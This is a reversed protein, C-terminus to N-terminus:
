RPWSSRGCRPSTAWCSCCGTAVGPVWAACGTPSRTPGTPWSATVDAAGDADADAIIRLAERDPHEAAIVDFWDLAWNFEELQPWRFEAMAAPYNVRHRLLLDRASRFALTPSQVDTM